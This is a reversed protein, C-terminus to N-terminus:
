KNLERIMQGVTGDTLPTWIYIMYLFSIMLTVLNQYTNNLKKETLLYIIKYVVLLNIPFCTLLMGFLDRLVIACCFMFVAFTQIILDALRNDMIYQLKKEAEIIQKSKMM